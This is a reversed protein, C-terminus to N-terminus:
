YTLHSKLLKMQIIIDKKDAAGLAVIKNYVVNMIDFTCHPSNRRIPYRGDGRLLVDDQSEAQTKEMSEFTYDEVDEGVIHQARYFASKSTFSRNLHTNLKQASSYSNGSALTAFASEIPSVNNNEKFSCQIETDQLEIEGNEGSIQYEDIQDNYDNAHGYKRSIQRIKKLHIRQKTPRSM